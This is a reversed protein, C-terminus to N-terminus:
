LVPVWWFSLWIFLRAHLKKSQWILPINITYVFNESRAIADSEILIFNLM